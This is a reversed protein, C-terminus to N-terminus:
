STKGVAPQYLPLCYVDSMFLPCAFLPGTAATTDSLLLYSRMMSEPLRFAFNSGSEFSSGKLWSLREVRTDEPSLFVGSCGQGM